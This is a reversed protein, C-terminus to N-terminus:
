APKRASLVVTYFGDDYCRKLDGFGAGELISHMSPLDEPMDYTSVHTFIEQREEDTLGQYNMFVEKWRVMIEDRTAGIVNNYVDGWLIVGGPKLCRYVDKLLAAKGDNDLHHIAYSSMIINFTNAPCARMYDSMDSQIFEIDSAPINATGRAISLAEGTTDVGIFRRCRTPMGPLSFLKSPLWADGVGIDLVTIDHGDFAQVEQAFAAIIENHNLHNFQLIKQYTAWSKRFVETIEESSSVPVVM